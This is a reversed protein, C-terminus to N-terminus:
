FPVFRFTRRKENEAPMGASREFAQKKDRMEPSSPRGATVGGEGEGGALWRVLEAGWECGSEMGVARRESLEGGGASRRM